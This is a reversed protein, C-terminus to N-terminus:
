IYNQILEATFFVLSVKGSELDELAQDLNEAPYVKCLQDVPFKGQRYLDILRPIM